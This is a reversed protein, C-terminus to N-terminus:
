KFVPEEYFPAPEEYAPAAAYLPEKGKGFGGGFEYRLGARVAHLNFGHDRGQVGSAGFASDVQDYGFADGEFVRTYRYGVDLKLQKTLDVSAGAMLSSAFRWSDEGEHYGMFNGEAGCTPNCIENKMKGYGVHAFGLGAGIYPTISGLKKLDVYANAMATWVDASTSDNYNCGFGVYSPCDSRGDIDLDYYDLSVDARFHDSFRYGLGAGLTYSSKTELEDFHYRSGREGFVSYDGSTKSSFLYGADGRIYWGSYNEKVPEEYAPASPEVYIPEIIDAARTTGTMCSLVGIAAVTAMLMSKM